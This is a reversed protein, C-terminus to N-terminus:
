YKTGNNYNKLIKMRKQFHLQYNTSSNTKTIACAHFNEFGVVIAGFKQFFFLNRIKTTMRLSEQFLNKGLIGKMSVWEM